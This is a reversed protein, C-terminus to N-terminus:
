KLLLCEKMDNISKKMYFEVGQLFAVGEQSTEYSDIMKKLEKDFKKNDNRIMMDIIEQETPKMKTISTKGDTKTKTEM